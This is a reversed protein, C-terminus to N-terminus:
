EKKGNKNGGQNYNAILTRKQEMLDGKKEDNLENKIKSDLIYLSQKYELEDIYSLYKAKDIHNEENLLLNSIEFTLDEANKNNESIYSMIEAVNMSGYQALYDKIYFYIESFLPNIFMVDKQDIYDLYSKDNLIQKILLSELKNIRRLTPDSVLNNKNINPTNKIKINENDDKIPHEKLYRYYETEINLSSLGTLISLKQAYLEVEIKDNLGNIEKFVDRILKKKDEDTKLENGELYHNIIFEQQSYYNSLVDILRDKGYKNLIEDSDKALDSKKVIKYRVESRNLKKIIALTNIQGANDNDLCLRIELNLNKLLQINESTLATGMLGVANKIGVKYLAIVDMFGEVIYLSKEKIAEPRANYFNYLIDTKHFINTEKTNIYKALNKDTKKFYRSSFGVINGEKNQIAFTIRDSNIDFYEGKNNLLLGVDQMLKYSYKQQGENNKIRKLYEIANIENRQAYGINFKKRIEANLGRNECYELADKNISREIMNLYFENADALCEKELYFKDKKIVKFEGIDIGALEAAKYLAEKYSINEKKQIFNIANGGEGCVFCKYIQKEPSVTLSPNSDNHFPCLAVYNKGKKTLPIYNKVVNVIDLKSLIERSDLKNIM